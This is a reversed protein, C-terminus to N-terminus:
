TQPVPEAALLTTADALDASGFGEAFTRYIKSLRDHMEPQKDRDSFVRALSMTARLEFSRSGQQRAIAIAQEYRAIAVAPSHRESRALFDGFLRHIEPEAWREGTDIAIRIAEEFTAQAFEPQDAAACADALFALCIPRFVRSGRQEWLELGRQLLKIAEAPRGSHRAHWGRLFCGLAQWYALERENAYKTLEGGFRAVEAGNRLLVNAMGAHWLAYFLSHMHGSARGCEEANAAADAAQNPWGSLWRAWSRYSYVTVGVDQGFSARLTQGVQSGAGHEDPDYHALAKDLALNAKKIDGNILHATGVLRHGTMIPGSEKQRKAFALFENGVKLMERPKGGIYHHAWLGYNVALHMGSDEVRTSLDRARTYAEGVQKDAYGNQELLTRSLAIQLKLEDRRRADDEPLTSILQLAHTIQKQAETLASRSLARGGSISLYGVAKAANDAESYHHALLEPQAECIEPFGEELALAIAGHLENRRSHLLMGYAADRVLAHKFVYTSLPPTGRRYLLESVGLRELASRLAPEPMAAVACLLDYSFERGIVAGIQAVERGPGLRDLRALLSGHLTRPISQLRGSDLEYRVKGERLIGIELVARTLEEVFLPVGETPALIHSKVDKPLVKGGAVHELLLEADATGLRPLEVVTVHASVQWPSSFGPRSAILLLVRLDPVSEVLLALFELSAPDIWHIDEAIVLLPQRAALGKIRTLLAAFTENKREKASFQEISQRVETPMSLLDAILALSMISDVGAARLATELKRLKEPASDVREFLCANQLEGIVSFMSADTQHPLGFYKLCAHPQAAIREEFETVLRSKGIGPEGTLMVVQGAGRQAQDWRRLLLEMQEDRGVLKLMGARRLADFRGVAVVSEGMVRWAPVPELGAELATPELKECDFFRGILERTSVAIVVGDAPAVSRLHLALNLSEGIASYNQSTGINGVLMVGTAIGIRLHLRTSLAIDVRPVSRVLELAARVAREADDEQAEPYGFYVLLSDGPTRVMIGHLPEVSDAIVQCVRSTAAHLDEPDNNAALGAFGTIQCALVTMQRREFHSISLERPDRDPATTTTAPEARKPRAAFKYGEGPVTLIFRPAKPDPEIKRRLRAVLMDISRDYSDSSRGAVENSLQDRSLVRGPKRIFTALLQFEARTLPIECENTDYLTRGALDVTGGEFRLIEPKEPDDSAREAPALLESLRGLLQIRNVPQPLMVVGPLSGALRDVENAGNALVIVCDVKGLLESTLKQSSAGLSSPAVIAVDIKGDAVLERTREDGTALEVGYGAPQLIRAVTARLTLDGAIILVHKKM